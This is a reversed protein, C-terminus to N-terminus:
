AVIFTSIGEGGIFSLQDVTVIVNFIVVTRLHRGIQDFVEIMGVYVFGDGTLMAAIMMVLVIRFLSFIARM